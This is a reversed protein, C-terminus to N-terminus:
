ASDMYVSQNSHLNEEFVVSVCIEADQKDVKVLQILSSTM